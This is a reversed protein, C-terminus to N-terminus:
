QQMGKKSKVLIWDNEQRKLIYSMEQFSGYNDWLTINIFAFKNNDFFIPNTIQFSNRNNKKTKITLNPNIKDIIKIKRLKCVYNLIDLSDATSYNPYFKLIEEINVSPYQYIINDRDNSSFVTIPLIEAHIKNPISDYISISKIIRNLELNEEKTSNKCGIFSFFYIILIYRNIHM